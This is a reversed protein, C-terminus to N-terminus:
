TTSAVSSRDDVSVFAELQNKAFTTSFATNIHVSVGPIIPVDKFREKKWGNSLPKRGEFRREL